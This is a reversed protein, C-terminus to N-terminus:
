RLKEFIFILPGKERATPLWMPCPDGGALNWGRLSLDPVEVDPVRAWAALPGGWVTPPRLLTRAPCPLTPLDPDM